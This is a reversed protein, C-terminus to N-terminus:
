AAAVVLRHGLRGGGDHFLRLSPIDQSYVVAGPGEELVDNRVAFRAHLAGVVTHSHEAEVEAPVVALVALEMRVDHLHEHLPGVGLDHVREVTAELRSELGVHFICLLPLVAM